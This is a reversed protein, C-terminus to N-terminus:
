TLSNDIRLRIRVCSGAESANRAAVSGLVALFAM